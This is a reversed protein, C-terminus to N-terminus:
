ALTWGFLWANCTAAAGQPTGVRFYLTGATQVDTGCVAELSLDDFKTTATLASLAQDAALTVGAGGAATFLGATATTLSISGNDVVLKDIRYRTSEITMANDSTAVNLDVASLSSLLGYRPLLSGLTSRAAVATADDLLTRAFATLSTLAVTNAGNGYIMQNAAIPSLGAIVLLLQNFAQVNTGITLGLNFRATAANALGSLNDAKLLITNLATTATSTLGLSTRSASASDVDSLNNSALLADGPSSGAAGKEGAPSVHSSSSVTFGPAINADYGLNELVIHTADPKSIVEYYGGFEVFLIQGPAAWESNEVEVTVNSSVAPQEFDDTTFTFANTGNEGVLSALWQEETGVFGNDVAVQYASEGQPGPINEVTPSPCPNGCCDGPNTLLSM